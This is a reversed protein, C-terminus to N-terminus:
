EPGRRDRKREAQIAKGALRRERSGRTPKTARRVRPITCAELVLACLREWALDRNRGASRTEDCTLILEGGATLRSGALRELRERALPRLGILDALALRLEVQSATRNVHQGGPGGSRVQSWALHAPDIEVGPALRLM